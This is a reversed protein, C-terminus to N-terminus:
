YVHFITKLLFKLDEFFHYNNVYRKNILIKEPWIVERNYKEPNRQNKLIEGENRFKLSAPGTIGPKVSLIVKDVGILKDAFGPIDPRPGVFSMDGRLVNILQPLEDLKSKRFANGFKSCDGKNNITKIKFIKFIKGKEGVRNQFFVGVSKTDLSALLFLLLLPLAILVILVISLFVDFVRKLYKQNDTLFNIVELEKLFSM